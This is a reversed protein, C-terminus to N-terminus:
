ITHVSLFIFLTCLKLFTKVHNVNRDYTFVHESLSQLKRRELKYIYINTKQDLILSFKDDCQFYKRTEIFCFKSKTHMDM